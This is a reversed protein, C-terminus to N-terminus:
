IPSSFSKKSKGPISGRNCPQAYTLSLFSHECTPRGANRRQCYCLQKENSDGEFQLEQDVSERLKERSQVHYLTRPMVCVGEGGAGCWTGFNSFSRLLVEVTMVDNTARHV